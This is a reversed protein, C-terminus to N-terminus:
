EYIRSKNKYYDICLNSYNQIKLENILIDIDIILQKLKVKQNVSDVLLYNSVNIYKRNQGLSGTNILDYGNVNKIFQQHSHGIIYNKDLVIDDIITDNFIYKDNITHTIFYNDITYNDIYDNIKKVLKFKPYCFEFFTKAVVNNGPYEGNIFYTEHNGKIKISQPQNDLLEVCENSWPGYNIVDGHSILIDYNNKEAKLVKEFAPLNGHIDGLILYTL